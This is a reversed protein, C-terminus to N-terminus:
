LQQLTEHYKELRAFDGHDTERLRTLDLNDDINARKVRAIDNEAARVVSGEVYADSDRKTLRDIADRVRTGFRENIDELTYSM